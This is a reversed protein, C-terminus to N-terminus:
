DRYRMVEIKEITLTGFAREVMRSSFKNADEMTSLVTLLDHELVGLFVSNDYVAYVTDVHTLEDNM